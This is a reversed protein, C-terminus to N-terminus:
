YNGLVLVIYISCKLFYFDSVLKLIVCIQILLIVKDM